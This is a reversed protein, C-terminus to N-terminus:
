PKYQFIQKIEGNGSLFDAKDIIGVGVIRQEVFNGRVTNNKNYDSSSLNKFVDAYANCGILIYRDDSCYVYVNSDIATATAIESGKERLKEVYMKYNRLYEDIYELEYRAIVNGNRDIATYYSSSPENIREVVEFFYLYNGDYIVSQINGEESLYISEAEKTEFNYKIINDSMNNDYIDKKSSTVVYMNSMNDIVINDGWSFIDLRGTGAGFIDSNNDSKYNILKESKGTAIDYSMVNYQTMDNVTYTRGSGCAVFYVKDNCVSIGLGNSDGLAFAYDSAYDFEYLIEPVANKALKIRRCQNQLMYDKDSSNGDNVYVYYYLYGDHIVGADANIVLTSDDSASAIKTVIERNNFRSDYKCLYFVNDDTREILYLSGNYYFIKKDMCNCGYKAYAGKSTTYIYADCNSDNHACDIRSCLQTNLSNDIDYYYLIDGIAYYYGKESIAIRARSSLLQAREQNYEYDPFLNVATTIDLEDSSYSGCGTITCTILIAAIIKYLCSIRKM